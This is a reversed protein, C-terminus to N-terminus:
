TSTEPRRYKMPIDSKAPPGKKAELPSPPPPPLVAVQYTGTRVPQPLAYKGEADLKAEVGVGLTSNLFQVRGDTFPKGQLTVQGTVMGEPPRTQCGVLLLMTMAAAFKQM